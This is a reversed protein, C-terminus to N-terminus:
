KQPLSGLFAKAEETVNFSHSQTDFSIFPIAVTQSDVM